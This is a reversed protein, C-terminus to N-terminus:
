RDIRDLEKEFNARLANEYRGFYGTAFIRPLSLLGEFWAIKNVRYTAIDFWPLQACELQHDRMLHEFERWATAYKSIAIDRTLKSEHPFGAADVYAPENPVYFKTALVCAAVKNAADVPIGTVSCWHAAIFASVDKQHREDCPYFAVNCLVTAAEVIARRNADQIPVDDLLDLDRVIQQITNVRRAPYNLAMVIYSWTNTLVGGDEFKFGRLGTLQKVCSSLSDSIRAACAATNTVDTM